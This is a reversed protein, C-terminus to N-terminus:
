IPMNMITEYAKILKNRVETTAQFAVSAKQSAIMTQTLTVSPDGSEVARALRASDTQLANVQDIADVLLDGFREKHGTAGEVRLPEPARDNVAADEARARMERMQTLVAAIDSRDSINM